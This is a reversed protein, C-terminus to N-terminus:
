RGEELLERQRWTQRTQAQLREVFDAAMRVGAEQAHLRARLTDRRKIADALLRRARALESNM